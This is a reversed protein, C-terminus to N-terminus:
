GQDVVLFYYNGALALAKLSCLCAGPCANLVLGKGSILM